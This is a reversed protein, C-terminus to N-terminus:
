GGAYYKKSPRKYPFKKNSRLWNDKFYCYNNPLAAFQGNDLQILNHTKYQEPDEALGSGEYDLTLVYSGSIGLKTDLNADKLLEYSVLSVPGELCTFPQLEENTLPTGKIEPRSTIAEIPLGSFIAGHETYVTFQLAKNAVAKVAVFYAAVFDDKVGDASLYESRIFIKKAPLNIV